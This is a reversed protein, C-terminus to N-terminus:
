RDNLRRSSAAPSDQRVRRAMVMAKLARLTPRSVLFPILSWMVKIPVARVAGRCYGELRKTEFDPEFQLDASSYARMLAMAPALVGFLAWTEDPSGLGIRFDATLENIKLIRPIGRALNVLREPFGRATLAALALRSFRERKGPKSKEVGEKRRGDRSWGMEKKVLGFMWRVRAVLRFSMDGEAYFNVDVPMVLLVTVVLVIGAVLGIVWM